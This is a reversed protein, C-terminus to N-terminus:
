LKVNAWVMKQPSNVQNMIYALLLNGAINCSADVGTTFLYDKKQVTKITYFLYSGLTIILLSTHVCMWKENGLLHPEHKLSHCIWVLGITLLVCDTLLFGAPIYLFTWHSLPENKYGNIRYAIAISLNIIYNVIIIAIGTYCVKSTVKRVQVHKENSKDERGFMEAVELYRFAFLWHGMHYAAYSTDM